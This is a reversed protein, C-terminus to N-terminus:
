LSHAAAAIKGAAAHAAPNMPGRRHAWKRAFFFPGTAASLTGIQIIEIPKIPILAQACKNKLLSFLKTRFFFPSTDSQSMKSHFDAHNKLEKAWKFLCAKKPVKKLNELIPLFDRKKTDSLPINGEL